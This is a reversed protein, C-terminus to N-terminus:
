TRRAPPRLSQDKIISIQITEAACRYEGRSLGAERQFVSRAPTKIGKGAREECASPLLQRQKASVSLPLSATWLWPVSLAKSFRASLARPLPKFTRLLFNGTVFEKSSLGKSYGLLSEGINSARRNLKRSWRKPSLLMRWKGDWCPGAQSSGRLLRYANPPRAMRWPSKRSPM